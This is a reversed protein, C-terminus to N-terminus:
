APGREDDEDEDEFDEDDIEEDFLSEDGTMLLAELVAAQIDEDAVDVLGAFLDQAEQPRIGAAAEIAALRLPKDTDDATVLAAVHPWAADLEWSGAARVAQYHIDPNESDLAERIQTEFGSVYVMCFVATLTWDDDGSAYADRVAEKHWDQPARVSAELIMRRVDRPTATDLFLGRLTEQVRGFLAESIATDDPDDFGMTDAEELAPGLAIAAMCRMDATEEGRGAIALLAEGLEDDMVTLDGALEAALLRQSAEAGDDRLIALLMEGTGEPWEWSPTNALTELNM